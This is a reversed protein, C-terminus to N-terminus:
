DMEQFGTAPASKSWGVSPAADEQPSSEARAEAIDEAIRTSAGKSNPRGKSNTRSDSSLSPAGVRSSALVTGRIAAASSGASAELSITTNRRSVGGKNVSKKRERPFAAGPVSQQSLSQRRVQRIAEQEQQLLEERESAFARKWRVYAACMRVFAQYMTRHLDSVLEKLHVTLVTDLATIAVLLRSPAGEAAYGFILHENRDRAVAAAGVQPRSIGNSRPSSESQRDIEQRMSAGVWPVRNSFAAVLATLEPIATDESLRGRDLMEDPLQNVAAAILGVLEAVYRTLTRATLFMDDLDLWGGPCASPLGEGSEDGGPHAESPFFFPEFRMQWVGELEDCVFKHAQRLQLNVERLLIPLKKSRSLPDHSVMVQVEGLKLDVQRVIKEGRYTFEKLQLRYEKDEFPQDLVERFMLDKVRAIRPGKPDLPDEAVVACDSDGPAPTGSGIGRVADIRRRGVGGAYTVHDLLDQVVEVM